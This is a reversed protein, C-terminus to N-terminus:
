RGVREWAGREIAGVIHAWRCRLPARLSAEGTGSTKSMRTRDGNAVARLRGGVERAGSLLSNEGNRKSGRTARTDEDLRRGVAWKGGRPKRQERSWQMWVYNRKEKFAHLAQIQRVERGTHMSGLIWNSIRGIDFRLRNPGVGSRWIHNKEKTGQFHGDVRGQQPVRAREENGCGDMRERRGEKAYIGTDTDTYSYLKLVSGGSSIHFIERFTWLSLIISHWYKGKSDDYAVEGKYEVSSHLVNSVGYGDGHFLLRNHYVLVARIRLGRPAMEEAGDLEVEPIKTAAFVM